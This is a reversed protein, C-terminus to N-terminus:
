RIPSAVIVAISLVCLFPFLYFADNPKKKTHGPMHISFLVIFRSYDFRM